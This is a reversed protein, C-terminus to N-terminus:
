KGGQNGGAECAVRLILQGVGAELLPVACRGGGFGLVPVREGRGVAGEGAHGGCGVVVVAAAAARAGVAGAVEGDVGLRDDTDGGVAIHGGAADVGAAHRGRAAAVVVVGFAAVAGVALGERACGVGHVYPDAEVGGRCAGLGLDRGYQMAVGVELRGVLLVIWGQVAGLGFGEDVAGGRRGGGHLPLLDLRRKDVGAAARDVVYEDVDGGVGIRAFAAGVVRQRDVVYLEDVAGPEGGDGDAAGGDGVEVFSHHVVGHMDVVEVGLDVGDGLDSVGGHGETALHDVVGGHQDGDVDGGLVVDGEAVVGDGEGGAGRGHADVRRRCGALM